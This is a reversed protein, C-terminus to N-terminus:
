GVLKREREIASRLEDMHSDEHELMYPISTRITRAPWEPWRLPRDLDDEVMLLFTQRLSERAEALEVGIRALDWSAPAPDAEARSFQDREEQGLHLVEGELARRIAFNIGHERDVLHCLLQQVTRGDGRVVVDLDGATLSEILRLTEARQGELPQLLDAPAMQDM